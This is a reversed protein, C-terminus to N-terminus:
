LVGAQALVDADIRIDEIRFVAEQDHEIIVQHWEASQLVAVRTGKASKMSVTQETKVQSDPDDMGSLVTVTATTDGADSHRISMNKALWYKDDAYRRPITLNMYVSNIGEGRAQSTDLTGEREKYATGDKSLSWLAYGDRVFGGAFDYAKGYHGWTIKPRTAVKYQKPNDKQHEESMHILAYRNHEYQFRIQQREKDWFLAADSLGDYSTHRIWDIDSTLVRHAFGNTLHVGFRSAWVIVKGGSSDDSDAVTSICYSNLLGPAGEIKRAITPTVVGSDISQLSNLSIMIQEAGLVLVEDMAALGILKDHEDFPFKDIANIETWSEPRGALSYHLARRKIGCLAGQFHAIADIVPPPQNAVYVTSEGEFEVTVLEMPPGPQDTTGYVSFDDTFKKASGILIRGVEGLDRQTGGDPTRYYIFHTTNSNQVSAPIESTTHNQTTMTVRESMPGPPSEIGETEDFETVAYLMGTGSTSFNAVETIPNGSLIKNDYDQLTVTGGFAEHYVISAKVRVLNSNASVPVQLVQFAGWYRDRREEFKTTYNAGADESVEIKVTVDFTAATGSTDPRPANPDEWQQGALAYKIHLKRDSDTNSAWTGYELYSTGSTSRTLGAFTNKDSDWGFSANTAGSSDITATPRGVSGVGAVADVVPKVQPAIMGANRVAGANDLVFVPDVGNTVYHRDNYHAVSMRGSDISLGTKLDVFDTTDNLSDPHRGKLTHTGKGGEQALVLIKDASKLDFQAYHIGKAPNVFNKEIKRGLQKWIGSDGPRYECGISFELEGNRTQHGASADTQGQDVKLTVNAM